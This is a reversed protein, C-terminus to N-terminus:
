CTIKSCAINSEGKFEASIGFLIVGGREVVYLRRIVRRTKGILASETAFKAVFQLYIRHRAKRENFLKMMVCCILTYRIKAAKERLCLVRRQNGNNQNGLALISRRQNSFRPHLQPFDSDTRHERIEIMTM